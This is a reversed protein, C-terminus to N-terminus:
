GESLMAIVDDIRFPKQLVGAIGELEALSQHDMGTMMLVPLEPHAKRLWSLVEVGSMGVLNLDLLVARVGPTEALIAEAAEGSEALLPRLGRRSLGRRLFSLILPDDDIILIDGTGTAASDAAAPSVAAPAAEVPRPPPAPPVVPVPPEAVSVRAPSRLRRLAAVALSGGLVLGILFAIAETM